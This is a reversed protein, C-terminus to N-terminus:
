EIEPKNLGLIIANSSRISSTNLYKIETEDQSLTFSNQKENENCFIREM